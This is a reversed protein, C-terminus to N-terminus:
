GFIGQRGRIEAESSCCKWCGWGECTCESSKPKKLKENLKDILSAYYDFRMPEDGILGLANRIWEHSGQLTEKLQLAQDCNCEEDHKM